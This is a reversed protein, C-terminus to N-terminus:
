IKLLIVDIFSINAKNIKSTTKPLIQTVPVLVLFVKGYELKSTSAGRRAVRVLAVADDSDLVALVASQSNIKKSQITSKIKERRRRRQMRTTRPRPRWAVPLLKNAHLFMFANFWIKTKQETVLDDLYEVMMPVATDRLEVPSALSPTLNGEAPLCFNIKTERLLACALFAHNRWVNSGDRVCM